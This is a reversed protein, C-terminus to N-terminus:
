LSPSHRWSVLTDENIVTRYKAKASGTHGWNLWLGPLWPLSVSCRPTCSRGFVTVFHLIFLVFLLELHILANNKEALSKSTNLLAEWGCMSSYKQLFRARNVCTFTVLRKKKTTKKKIKNQLHILMWICCIIDEAFYRMPLCNKLTKM